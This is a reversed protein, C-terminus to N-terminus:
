WPSWTAQFACFATSQNERPATHKAGHLVFPLSVLPLNKGRPLKSNMPSGPLARYRRGGEGGDISLVEQEGCGKGPFETTGQM